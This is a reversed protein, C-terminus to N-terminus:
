LTLNRTLLYIQSGILQERMRRLNDAVHATIPLSRGVSVVQRQVHVEERVALRSGEVTGSIASSENVRTVHGLQVIVGRIGVKGGAHVQVPLPVQQQHVRVDVPILNPPDLSPFHARAENLTLRGHNLSRQTVRVAAIALPDSFHLVFAVM